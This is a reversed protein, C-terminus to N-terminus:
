VNNKEELANFGLADNFSLVNNSNTVSVLHIVEVSEVWDEFEIPLLIILKSM